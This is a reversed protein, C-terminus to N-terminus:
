IIENTIIPPPTKEKYDAEARKLRDTHIKTSKKGIKVKVTVPGCIEVVRYPGTYLPSFKSKKKPDLILVLDNIQLDLTGNKRNKDYYKKNEIKRKEYQERAMIHYTRLKSRLQTVYNDYNYIPVERKLIEMPLNPEYGFLLEYPTFNTTTSPTTNHSYIAYNIIEHWQDEEKQVFTRLYANLDKHLRECISSQPRYPTTFFKKIKLLRTLQSILESTFYSANDSLLIKPPGFQLVVNTIFAHAITLATCGKIPVAIAWKTLDDICTFIYNHNEASHPFIEGILDVAVKEFPQSSTSSIQMPNRTHRGIKNKECFECQKIHHKIDSNMNHWNFYKRITNKTKEFSNHGGMMSDHYQELIEKITTQDTVEIIKNLFISVKIQTAHFTKRIGDKFEFLHHATSLEINIAIYEYLKQQCFEKIKTLIEETQNSDFSKNKLLIITRKNGIDYLGNNPTIEELRIQTQLKHQLQKHMRCNIDNFIYFIHDHENNKILLHKNEEIYFFKEKTINSETKENNKRNQLEAYTQARTQIKNITITPTDLAKQAVETPNEIRSLFDAVVNTTGKKYVIEFDYQSLYLKWRYLRQNMNKGGLLSTIPKHDTCIIFHRNFIFYRFNELALIISLMEKETTSYRQQVETLSRSFYQIPKDHPMVGQSIVSGVSQDAADCSIIFTETYTPHILLPPSTLANKLTNFSDDCAKTWIYPVNKKLLNFLNRAIHSYGKIHIRFYNCMGLFRQLEKINRPEKCEKICKTKDEDVRIGDNSIIFGLYKVSKQMFLSKSIKLKLHHKILRKLVEKLLEVHQTLNASHIILDDMYCYVGKGILGDLVTHITRLWTFPSGMLGFPTSTFQFKQWSTSFSTYERCNPALKVQHFAGQLDLTTFIKSGGLNEIITSIEPIPFQEPITVANLKRYDICVRWSPTQDNEGHKKVLILPSNWASNSKEIIGKQELEKLQKEVEQQQAQPIKYQRTFIPNTGPQLKIVHETIDTHEFPDGPIYFAENFQFCLEKIEIKQEETCDTLTLTNMLYETRDHVDEMKTNENNPLESNQIKQQLIQAFKNEKIEILVPSIKNVYTKTNDLEDYFNKNKNKNSNKTDKKEYLFLLECEYRNTAEQKEYEAVATAYETEENITLTQEAKEKEESVNMLELTNDRYNINAAFYTLLDSGIIGDTNLNIPENTIHFGFNLKINEIEIYTYLKGLSQIPKDKSIGIIRVKEKKRIISDKRLKETKLLSIQAGTDVTLVIPETASGMRATIKIENHKTIFKIKIKKNTDWNPQQQCQITNNELM